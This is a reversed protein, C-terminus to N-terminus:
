ALKHPRIRTTAIRHIEQSRRIVIEAGMNRADFLYGYSNLGSAHARSLWACTESDSKGIDKLSPANGWPDLGTPDM